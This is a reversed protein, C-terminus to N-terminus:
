CVSKVIILKDGAKIKPTKLGNTSIIEAETTHYNRAIDWLEEGEQVIYGTVGAQALLKKTDLPEERIEVIKDFCEEKLVLAALSLSAKIEYRENDLLSVTLQDIGPEFEYNIGTGDKDMGQVDIVQMFPIQEFSHAVPFSDDTTAYLIHVSLIGEVQLGNEVPEVSDVDVTGEYSCLQLIREKDESLKLQQSIRLKAENKVLLKWSRMPAKEPVLNQGLAYVDSLIEIEEEHWIKIDVDFNMDLSLTRLEGDTDGVAELETDAARSSIWYLAQPSANECDMTGSVPVMSEYWEMQGEPSTYLVSLYAEGQMQVRDNSLSIEKNRIDVNYYIIKAINPSAKPLTVENHTRLIDKKSTVLLLMQRSDQKQQIGEDASVLSVLEEETMQECVAKIGIVARVALKRSNIASITLDELNGSLKVTDLEEAEDMFIKEGFNVSDVMTELRNGESRYLITFRLQGTVWVTQSSVRVEEFLISGKTHIIKIVDPKNDKVICDDDLTVQTFARGKQSNQKLTQRKLELM